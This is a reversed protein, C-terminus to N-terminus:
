IRLPIGVRQSRHSVSSFFFLVVIDTAMKVWVIYAPCCSVFLPLTQENYACKGGGEGDDTM